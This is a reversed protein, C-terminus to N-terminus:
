EEEGDEGDPSDELDMIVVNVHDVKMGALKFIEGAVANKLESAVQPILVGYLLIVRVEVSVSNENMEVTIARDQIKKSGVIEALNDVLSSTGLRLVGEVSMAAKRVISAIVSEHVKVAGVSNEHAPKATKKKAVAM